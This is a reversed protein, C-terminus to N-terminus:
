NVTTSQVITFWTIQRFIDVVAFNGCIDKLHKGTDLSFLQGINIMLLAACVGAQEESLDGAKGTAGKATLMLTLMTSLHNM